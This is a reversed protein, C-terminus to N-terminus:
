HRIVVPMTVNRNDWFGVIKMAANAWAERTRDSLEDWQPMVHGDFTLGGTQDGYAEYGVQALKLQNENFQTMRAM